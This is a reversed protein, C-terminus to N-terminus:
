AARRMGLVCPRAQAFVTPGMDDARDESSLFADLDVEQASDSDRAGGMPSRNDIECWVTKGDPRPEVGWSRALGAVLNVGRGTTADPGFHRARPLATVGDAVELRLAGDALLQVGVSFETHAHLVCNTALESVALVAAWLAEECDWRRLQTTLFQRAALVSTADASFARAAVPPSDM